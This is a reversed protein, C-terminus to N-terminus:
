TRKGHVDGLMTRSQYMCSGGRYSPPQKVKCGVAILINQRCREFARWQRPSLEKNFPNEVKEIEERILTLIGKIFDEYWEDNAIGECSDRGILLEKLKERM